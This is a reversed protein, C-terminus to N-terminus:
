GRRRRAETRPRPQPPPARSRAHPQPLSRQLLLALIIARSNIATPRLLEYDSQKRKHESCISWRAGVVHKEALEAKAIDDWHLLRARRLLACRRSREYILLVMARM